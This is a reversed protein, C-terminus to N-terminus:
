SVCMSNCESCRIPTPGPCPGALRALSNRWENYSEDFVHSALLHVAAVAKKLNSLSASESTELRLPNHSSAQTTTTDESQSNIQPPGQSTCKITPQFRLVQDYTVELKFELKTQCYKSIMMTVQNHGNERLQCSRTQITM